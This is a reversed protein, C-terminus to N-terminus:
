GQKYYIQYARPSMGMARTFARSFNGHEDYGLSTAVESVRMGTNILRDCAASMKVQTVFRRPTTNMHEKFLRELTSMSVAAERAIERIGIGEDLHEYIKAIIVALQRHRTPVPLGEEHGMRRSIGATGVCRGGTSLLPIKSTSRWEVGGSRTPTLESANWLAEGSALVREDDAQYKAALEGPFVDEDKLGLIGSADRMAVEYCFAKNVFVFRGSADKMWFIVDPLAEFLAPAIQGPVLDAIFSEVDIPQNVKMPENDAVIVANEIVFYSLHNVAIWM